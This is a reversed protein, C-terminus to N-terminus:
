SGGQEMADDDFGVDDDEYAFDEFEEDSSMRREARAATEALATSTKLRKSNRDPSPPPSYLHKQGPSTPLLSSSPLTASANQGIFGTNRVLNGPPSSPKVISHGRRTTHLSSFDRDGATSIGSFYLLSSLFSAGHVIRRTVM